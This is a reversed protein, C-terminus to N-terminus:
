MSMQKTKAMIVVLIQNNEPILGLFQDIFGSQDVYYYGYTIAVHFVNWLLATVLILSFISSYKNM